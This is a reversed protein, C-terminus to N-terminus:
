IHEEFIVREVVCCMRNFNNVMNDYYWNLDVYQEGCDCTMRIYSSLFVTFSNRNNICLEATQGDSRAIEVLRHGIDMQLFQEYTGGFSNWEDDDNQNYVNLTYSWGASQLLTDINKLSCEFRDSTEFRISRTKSM